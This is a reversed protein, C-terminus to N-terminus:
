DLEVGVVANRGEELAEAREEEEEEKEEEEEEEEGPGVVGEEEEEEGPGVGEELVSDSALVRQEM